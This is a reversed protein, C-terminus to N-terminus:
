TSAENASPPSFPRQTPSCAQRENDGARGGRQSHPGLVWMASQTSHLLPEAKDGRLVTLTATWKSSTLESRILRKWVEHHADKKKGGSKFLRIICYIKAEKKRRNGCHTGGCGEMFNMQWEVLLTAVATHRTIKTQPVRQHVPHPCNRSELVKCQLPSSVQQGHHSSPDARLGAKGLPAPGQIRKVPEKRPQLTSVASCLSKGPLMHCKKKTKQYIVMANSRSGLHCKELFRKESLNPSLYYAITIQLVRKPEEIMKWANTETFNIRKSYYIAQQVM